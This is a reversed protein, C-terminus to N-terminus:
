GLFPYKYDTPPVLAEKVSRTNIWRTLNLYSGAKDNTGSARAGGFPQQGVVSGTPKDNLYFNGAAFKLKDKGFLLAERERAFVSGTLAYESTNNCLELTEEYKDDEYIYVTLVPAFIEEEMTVYHPDKAEIVTPEVFYGKSKDGNGGFIIEADKSEKADNIYKMANDFSAEDIVANVFNSFDTVDGMKIEALMEGVQKKIAPWLSKPIYARSAASCKQGQYEYAARILAVSVEKPDASKHAVVFDKGGTEGVIRPYSKYNNINNGITKWFNQFVATSGTFHIGALEPSGFVEKGIVSGAGPLFNIVGDPMGAEKYIKMLFWNSFLSPRSPKWLAVNGMLAPSLPLNSAIATFNFPTVAFVFGELPRYEIRNIVGKDSIPQDAYIETMYSANFRLFDITECAAEIEAQHVSKGQGLMTSANILDRYKTSLLEAIKLMISGREAYPMNEWTKKAKLAADIAMKVEKEGVQHYTALVHQHNTPMTVKATKGTKIEKGGIVPFIEHEESMLRELEKQLSEREESGPAYAKVPENQPFEFYYLSNNM